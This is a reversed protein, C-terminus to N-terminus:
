CGMTPWAFAPAAIALSCLITIVAALIQWQRTRCPAVAGLESSARALESSCPGEM